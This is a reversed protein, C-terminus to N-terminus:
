PFIEDEVFAEALADTRLNDGMAVLATLGGVRMDVAGIVKVVDKEDLAVLAAFLVFSAAGVLAAIEVPQRLFFLFFARFRLHEAARLKAFAHILSKPPRCEGQRRHFM